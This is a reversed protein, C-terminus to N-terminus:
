KLFNFNCETGFMKFIEENSMLILNNKEPSTEDFCIGENTKYVEDELIKLPAEYLMNNERWNLELCNYVLNEYINNKTRVIGTNSIKTKEYVFCPTQFLPQRNFSIVNCFINNLLLNQKCLKVLDKDVYYQAKSFLFKIIFFFFFYIFLYIFLYIVM